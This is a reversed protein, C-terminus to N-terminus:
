NKARPDPRERSRLLATVIRLVCRFRAERTSWARDAFSVKPPTWPLRASLTRASTSRSRSCSGSRTARWQPSSAPHSPDSFAIPSLRARTPPLLRTEIAGPTRRTGELASMIPPLEGDFQVDVVAGIVQTVRGDAAANAAAAAAFGRAFSAEPKIVRSAISRQTQGVEPFSRALGARSIGTTASRLAQRSLSGTVRSFRRMTIVNCLNRSRRSPQKRSWSQPARARPVPTRESSRRVGQAVARCLARLRVSAFLDIPPNNELTRSEVRVPLCLARRATELKPFFIAPRRLTQNPWRALTEKRFERARRLRRPVGLDVRRGAWIPVRMADDASQYPRWSCRGSRRRCSAGTSWRPAHALQANSTKAIGGRQRAVFSVSVVGSM